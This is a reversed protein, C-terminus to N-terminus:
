KDMDYFSLLICQVHGLGLFYSIIWVKAQMIIIIDLHLVFMRVIM